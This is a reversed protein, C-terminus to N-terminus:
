KVQYLVYVLLLILVLVLLIWQSPDQRLTLAAQEQMLDTSVPENSEDDKKVVNEDRFLDKLESVFRIAVWEKFGEKWVLTDPTIRKDKKLEKISFPGDKKGEILVFWSDKM